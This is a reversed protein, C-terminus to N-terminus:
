LQVVVVVVIGVVVVVVVCEASLAAMQQTHNLQLQKCYEDSSRNV